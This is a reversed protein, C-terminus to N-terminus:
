RPRLLHSPRWLVLSLVLCFSPCQGNSKEQQSCPHVKEMPSLSPVNSVWLCIEVWIFRAGDCDEVHSNDSHKGWSGAHSGSKKWYRYSMVKGKMITFTCNKHGCSPTTEQSTYFLQIGNQHLMLHNVSICASCLIWM